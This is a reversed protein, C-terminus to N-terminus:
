RGEGFKLTRQDAKQPEQLPYAYSSMPYGYPPYFQHPSPYPANTIVSNLAM